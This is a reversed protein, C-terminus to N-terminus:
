LTGAPLPNGNFNTRASTDCGAPLWWVSGRWGTITHGDGPAILVKHEPGGDKWVNAILWGAPLTVSAGTLDDLRKMFQCSTDPASTPPAATPQSQPEAVVTATQSVVTGQFIPAAQDTDTPNPVPQPVTACSSLAVVIGIMAFGLLVFGFIRGM